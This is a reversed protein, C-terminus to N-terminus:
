LKKLIQMQIYLYEIGQREILRKFNIKCKFAYTSYGNKKMIYASIRLGQGKYSTNMYKNEQQYYATGNANVFAKFLEKSAPVYTITATHVMINKERVEHINLIKYYYFFCLKKM